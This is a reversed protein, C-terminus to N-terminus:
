LQARNHHERGGVVMAPSQSLTVALHAAVQEGEQLMRLNRRIVIAAVPFQPGCGCVALDCTAETRGPTGVQEGANSGDDSCCRSSSFGRILSNERDHVPFRDNLRTSCIGRM